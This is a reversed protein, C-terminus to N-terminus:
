PRTRFPRIYRVRMERFQLNSQGSITNILAVDISEARKTEEVRDSGATELLMDPEVLGRCGLQVSLDDLSRLGLSCWEVRTRRVTHGFEISVPNSDIIALRISHVRAVPDQEIVLTRATTPGKHRALDRPRDSLNRKALLRAQVETVQVSLTIPTM